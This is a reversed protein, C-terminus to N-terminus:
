AAQYDQPSKSQATKAKTASKSSGGMIIMIPQTSSPNGKAEDKPESEDDPLVIENITGEMNGPQLDDIQVEVEFRVTAGVKQRSLFDKLEPNDEFDINFHNKANM